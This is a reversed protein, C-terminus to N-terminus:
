SQWPQGGKCQRGLVHNDWGQIESHYPIPLFFLQLIDNIRLFPQVRHQAKENELISTFTSTCRCAELWLCRSQQIRRKLYRFSYKSTAVRDRAVEGEKSPESESTDKAQTWQM